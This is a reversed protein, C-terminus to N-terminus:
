APLALLSKMEPDEVNVIEVVAPNRWDLGYYEALSIVHGPLWDAVVEETAYKRVTNQNLGLDQAVKYATKGSNKHAQQLKIRFKIMANVESASEWFVVIPHHLAVWQRLV